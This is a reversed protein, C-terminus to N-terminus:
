RSPTNASNESAAGTGESEGTASTAGTNESAAGSMASSGGEEKNLERQAMEFDKSATSERGKNLSAEGERLYREARSVSKGESRLQNLQKQLQTEMTYVDGANEAGPANMAAGTNESAASASGNPMASPNAGSTAPNAMAGSSATGPATTTGTQAFLAPTFMTLSLVVGAGAAFKSINM